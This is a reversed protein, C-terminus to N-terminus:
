RHTALWRRHRALSVLGAFGTARQAAAAVRLRLLLEAAALADSAANHRGVCDIGYATLWDDLAGTGKRPVDPRLVAALPALDLWPGALAPVSALRAARVLVRRDFDCHFAVCPAGDVWERFANLAVGAPVGAGLAERGLGHLAVNAADTAGTHRLVVEFSDDVRVGDDDVAVAGIALLADRDPDIGTTETDLVVWRRAAEAARDEARVFLRRLFDISAM